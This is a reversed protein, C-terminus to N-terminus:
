LAAFLMTESLNPKRHRLYIRYDPDIGKIFEFIRVIDDKLHYASIALRPKFAKIGKSFGNLASMEAGEIDMKLFDVSGIGEKEVFTDLTLVPITEGEIGDHLITAGPGSGGMRESGERDSVGVPVIQANQIGNRTLNDELQEINSPFPEFCYVKGGKGVQESFWLSTEGHFAGVDFVIDGKEPQVTDDIQYQKFEWTDVITMNYNSRILLGGIDYLANCKLAEIKKIAKEYEENKVRPPFIRSTLGHGLTSYAVKSRIYWDFTEKSEGDELSAYVRDFADTSRLAEGFVGVSLWKSRPDYQAREIVKWYHSRRKRYNLIRSLLSDDKREEGRGLKNIRDRFEKLYYEEIREM